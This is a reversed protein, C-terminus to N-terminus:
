PKKERQIEQVEIYCHGYVIISYIFLMKLTVQLDIYLLHFGESEISNLIKDM